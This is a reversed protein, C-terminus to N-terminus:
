SNQPAHLVSKLETFGSLGNLQFISFRERKGKTVKVENGMVRLPLRGGNIAMIQNREEQTYLTCREGRMLIIEAAARDVLVRLPGGVGAFRFSYDADHISSCYPYARRGVM